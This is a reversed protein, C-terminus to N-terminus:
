IARRVSCCKLRYFSNQSDPTLISVAAHDDVPDCREVWHLVDDVGV